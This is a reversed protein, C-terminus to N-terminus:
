IVTRLCWFDFDFRVEWYDIAAHTVAPRSIPILHWSPMYSIQSCYESMHLDLELMLDRCVIIVWLLRSRSLHSTVAGWLLDVKNQTSFSRTWEMPFQRCFSRLRPSGPRQDVVASCRDLFEACSHLGRHLDPHFENYESITPQSIVMTVINLFSESDM